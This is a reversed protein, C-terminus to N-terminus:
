SPDISASLLPGRHCVMKSIPKSVKPSWMTITGDKHGLCIVANAPNQKIVNCNGKFTRYNAVDKGTTVDQYRLIGGTGISVLLMHHNLFDLKRAGLHNRLCHIEHGQTNYIHVYKNQSTAFYHHSHLFKIHHIKEKVKIECDLQSKQRQLKAIHGKESGLVLRLGDRSSDLCYSGYINLRLNLMLKNATCGVSEM